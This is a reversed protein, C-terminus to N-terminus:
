SREINESYSGFGNSKMEPDTVNIQLLNINSYLWLQILINSQYSNCLFDIFSFISSYRTMLNFSFYEMLFYGM